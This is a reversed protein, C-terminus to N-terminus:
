IGRGRQEHVYSISYSACAYVCMYVCACVCACVRLLLTLGLSSKGIHCHVKGSRQGERGSGTFQSQSQSQLSHSRNYVTVTLHSRHSNSHSSAVVCTESIVWDALKSKEKGKQLAVFAALTSLPLSLSIIISLLLSCM